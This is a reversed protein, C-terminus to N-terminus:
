GCVSSRDQRHEFYSQHERSLRCAGEVDGKAIADVSPQHSAAAAALDAGEESITVRTHTELHLSDWLKLLLENDAAAVIVRHFAMSYFVM